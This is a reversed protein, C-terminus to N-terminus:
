PLSPSPISQPYVHSPLKDPATFDSSISYHFIPIISQHVFCCIDQIKGIIRNEWYELM